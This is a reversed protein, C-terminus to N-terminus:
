YTYTKPNLNPFMEKVKQTALDWAHTGNEDSIRIDAGAALLISIASINGYRVAMHLPTHDLDTSKSKCADIDINLDVILTKLTKSTSFNSILSVLVTYHDIQYKFTDDFSIAKSTIYNSISDSYCRRIISPLNIYKADLLGYNFLKDVAQYDEYVCISNLLKTSSSWNFIGSKDIGNNIYIELLAMKHELPTHEFGFLVSSVSWKKYYEISYFPIIVEIIDLRNFYICTLFIDASESKDYGCNSIHEFDAGANYYMLVEKPTLTNDCRIRRILIDSLETPTLNELDEIDLFYKSM